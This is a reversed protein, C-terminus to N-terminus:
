YMAYPMHCVFRCLIYFGVYVCVCVCVCMCVYVCVCVCLCFCVCVLVYVLVCVYMCVKTVRSDLRKQNNVITINERIHTVLKRILTEYRVDGEVPDAIFPLQELISIFAVNENEAKEQIEPNIM